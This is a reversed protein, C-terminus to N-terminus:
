TDQPIADPTTWRERRYRIVQTCLVLDQVVFGEYGKFRSGDPVAAKIVREEIGAQLTSKGRWLRKSRRPPKPASAAQRAVEERL